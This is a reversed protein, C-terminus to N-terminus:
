ELGYLLAKKEVGFAEKLKQEFKKSSFDIANYVSINKTQARYTTSESFSMKSDKLHPTADKQMNVIMSSATEGFYEMVSDSKYVTQLAVSSDGLKCEIFGIKNDCITLIDFENIVHIDHFGVQMQDFEIKVNVKIDDFDFGSVQIYIFEEFLYGFNTYGKERDLDNYTNVVGLVKLAQLIEPFDNELRYIKDARLLERAKFLRKIDGFILELEKKRGFIRDHSAEELIKDGMLLLYDDINLNHKIKENIFGNSTIINYSNDEKDYALVKGDQHLIITSLVIFIATDAGAGTLYINQSHDTFEKLLNLMDHKSDEDIEIMKIHNDVSYKKNISEIASRLEKAVLRDEDNCDFILVHEKTVKLFEFIIPIYEIKNRHVITVLKM